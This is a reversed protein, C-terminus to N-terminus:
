IIYIATLFEGNEAISFEGCRNLDKRM